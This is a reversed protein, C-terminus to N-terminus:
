ARHQWWDRLGAMPMLRTPAAGLNHVIRHCTPCLVAFDSPVSKRPGLALAVLHHADFHAADLDAFGCGECKLVGNNTMRNLAKVRRSLGRDRELADSEQKRRNGEDIGVNGPLFQNVLHLGGGDRFNLIPPVDVLRLQRNQLATWLNEVQPPRIVQDFAGNMLANNAFGLETLKPHGQVEYVDRLAVCVPWQQLQARTAEDHIFATTEGYTSSSLVVNLVKGAEGADVQEGALVAILAPATLAHRAMAQAAQYRRAADNIDGRVGFCMVRTTTRGWVAKVGMLTDPRPVLEQFLM